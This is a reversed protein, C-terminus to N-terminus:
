AVDAEGPSDEETESGGDVDGITGASDTAKKYRRFCERATNRGLGTEACIVDWTAGELRRKVVYSAAEDARTPGGANLCFEPSEGLDQNDTDAIASVVSEPLNGNLAANIIRWAKLRFRLQHYGRRKGPPLVSYVYVNDFLEALLSAARSEDARLASPLQQIQSEIWKQDPLQAVTGLDNKATEIEATIRDIERDLEGLRQHVTAYSSCGHSEASDSSSSSKLKGTEVFELLRARRETLEAQQHCLDDIKAPLQSQANRVAENMAAIAASLWDPIALLLEAAFETLIRKTEEAPVRTRDRCDDPGNGSNKCQRYVTKGSQNYHMEGGCHGCRLLKLLVDKPYAKTYHAKPGRIKQGDKFAFISDIYAIRAQVRAWTEADIIRLDPRSVRIIQDAPAPIQKKRGQSDRIMMTAGWIWEEGSHKKNRCIRGVVRATWKKVGRGVPANHEQLWKAVRNFSWGIAVLRFIERVWKAHPEFIAVSKAPKPGRGCYNAAYVPDDFVSYYGYSIDGASKNNLVRGSMGRRVRHATEESSHANHIGLLRVKLTWGKENTDVGDGSVFRTGRYVMDKIVGVVDDNRSARAQDDVGFVSVCGQRILELAHLFKPRDNKTGSEAREHIVIADTADIGLRVFLSRVEREQDENSTDSQLESSYRTYILPRRSSM